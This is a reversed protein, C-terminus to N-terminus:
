KQVDTVPSLANYGAVHTCIDKIWQQHSKFSARTCLVKVDREVEYLSLRSRISKNIDAFALKNSM